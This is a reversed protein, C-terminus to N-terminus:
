KAKLMALETNHAKITQVHEALKAHNAANRAINKAKKKERSYEEKQEPTANEKTIDEGSDNVKPSLSQESNNESLTIAEEM